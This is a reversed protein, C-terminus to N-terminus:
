LRVFPIIWNAKRRPGIIGKMLVSHSIGTLRWRDVWPPSLSAGYINIYYSHSRCKLSFSRSWSWINLRGLSKEGREFHFFFDNIESKFHITVAFYKIIVLVLIHILILFYKLSKRGLCLHQNKFSIGHPTYLYIWKFTYAIQIM